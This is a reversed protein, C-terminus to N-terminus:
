FLRDVLIITIVFVKGNSVYITEVTSKNTAQKIKKIKRIM